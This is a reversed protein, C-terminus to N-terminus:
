SLKLNKLEAQQQVSFGEPDKLKELEDFILYLIIRRKRENERGELGTEVAADCM